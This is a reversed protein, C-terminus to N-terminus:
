MGSRALDQMVLLVEGIMEPDLASTPERFANNLAENCSGQLPWGKSSVVGSLQTPYANKNDALGVRELLAMAKEEAEKPFDESKLLAL